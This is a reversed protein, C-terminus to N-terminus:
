KMTPLGLIQVYSHKCFGRQIISLKIHNIWFYQTCKFKLKRISLQSEMARIMKLGDIIASKLVWDHSYYTIKTIKISYKVFNGDSLM